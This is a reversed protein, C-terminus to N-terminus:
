DDRVCRVSFGHGYSNSGTVEFEGGLTVFVPHEHGWSGTETATWWNGYYGADGFTGDSSLRSGGPLASFGYENAGNGNGDWGSTSKLKKGITSSGVVTKLEEWDEVSPLHWGAPCAVKAMEWDYLRGYKKCNSEDNNYCWSDGIKFRLNEAMWVQNGIMVSRYKQSDRKDTFTGAKKSATAQGSKETSSADKNGGCGSLVVAAMVVAQLAKGMRNFFRM